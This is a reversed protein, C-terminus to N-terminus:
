GCDIIDLAPRDCVKRRAKFDEYLGLWVEKERCGGGEGQADCAPQYKEMSDGTAEWPKPLPDDSFHVLRAERMVEEVDWTEGGSGRLWKAHDAARLEGTLLAYTRHPLVLCERGYLANVIEMDYVGLRAMQALATQVRAFEGASPQILMVHSSVFPRDLWWARPVVATAAPLLFLEDLPQLVTADSDLVLLRAYRTQNFALLKTYSDAWNPGAYAAAEEHQVAIPVLTAGHEDRAKRLLRSEPSEPTADPSPYSSPYLLLRAARSHLRHLTEFIMVSNCLYDLNTAYQTYAFRSWDVDVRDWHSLPYVPASLSCSPGTLRTWLHLDHLTSRFYVFLTLALFVAIAVRAPKSKLIELISPKAPPPSNFNDLPEFTPFYPSSQLFDPVESYSAHKGKM